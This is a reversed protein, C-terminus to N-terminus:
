ERLDGIFSWNLTEEGDPHRERTVHYLSVLSSDGDSDDTDPSRMRVLTYVGEDEISLVDGKAEERIQQELPPHAEELLQEAYEHVAHLEPPELTDLQEVLADPLQETPSRGDDSNSM